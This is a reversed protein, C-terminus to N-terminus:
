SLGLKEISVNERLPAQRCINEVLIYRDQHHQLHRLEQVKGPALELLNGPHLQQTSAKKWRCSGFLVRIGSHQLLPLRAVIEHGSHNQAEVLCHFSRNNLCFIREEHLVAFIPLECPHGIILSGDSKLAAMAFGSEM